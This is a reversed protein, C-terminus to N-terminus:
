RVHFWRRRHPGRPRIPSAGRPGSAAPRCLLDNVAQAARSLGGAADSASARGRRRADGAIETSASAPRSKRSMIWEIHFGRGGLVPDRARPHPGRPLGGRAIGGPGAFDGARDNFELLTRRSATEGVALVVAEPEVAQRDALVVPLDGR